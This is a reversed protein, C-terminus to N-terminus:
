VARYGDQLVLHEFQKIGSENGAPNALCCGVFKTPYEESCNGFRIDEKEVKSRDRKMEFVNPLVRTVLSHDFKHNIPQVILAVDVGAEEVCQLLFDVHGPLTLEQGPFSPFKSVAEEPSAWVHLHSVIIEFCSPCKSQSESAAM